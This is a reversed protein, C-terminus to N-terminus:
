NSILIRSYSILIRGNFVSRLDDSNDILDKMQLLFGTSFLEFVTLFCDSFLPCCRLLVGLDLEYFLEQLEADNNPDSKAAPTDEDDVLSPYREEVKEQLQDMEVPLIVNYFSYDCQPAQRGGRHADRRVCRCIYRKLHLNGRKQYM